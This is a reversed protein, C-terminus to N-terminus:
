AVWRELSLGHRAGRRRPTLISPSDARRGFTSTAAWRIAPTGFSPRCSASSPTRTKTSAFGAGSSIRIRDSNASGSVTASLSPTWSARCGSPSRTFGDSRRRQASSKSTARASTGLLEIREVKDGGSLASSSPYLATIKEFIGSRELDQLEPVSMGVNKAGAGGLDDFVRVLREPERFPLPQLLVANVVTFIALNAGIGLALTLVTITAFAPSKRLTRWAYRVNQLLGDM